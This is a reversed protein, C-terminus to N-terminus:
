KTEGKSPPQRRDRNVRHETKRDDIISIIHELSGIVRNKDKITQEHEDCQERLRKNEATIADLAEKVVLVAGQSTDVVIKNKDAPVKFISVLSAIIGGGGFVVALITLNDSAM